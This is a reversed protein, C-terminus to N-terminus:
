GKEAFDGVHSENAAGVCHWVNDFVENSQTENHLNVILNVIIRNWSATCNQSAKFILQLNIIFCNILPKNADSLIHVPAVKIVFLSSSFEIFLM